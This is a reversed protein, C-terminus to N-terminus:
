AGSHKTGRDRAKAARCAACRGGARYGTVTGCATQGHCYRSLVENVAQAFEGDWAMRGYIQNGTLGVVAAAAHPDATERLAALLAARIAPTFLHETLGRRWRTSQAAHVRRAHTDRDGYRYRTSPALSPQDTM